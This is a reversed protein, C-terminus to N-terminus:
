AMLLRLPGGRGGTGESAVPPRGAEVIRLAPVRIPGGDWFRVLAMPERDVYWGILVGESGASMGAWPTLLRVVDGARLSNM